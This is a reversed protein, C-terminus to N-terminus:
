SASCMNKNLTKTPLICYVINSQNGVIYKENLKTFLINLKFSNYYAMKIKENELINYLSEGSLRPIHPMARASM